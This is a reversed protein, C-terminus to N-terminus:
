GSLLSERENTTISRTTRTSLQELKISAGAIAAASKDDVVGTISGLGAQGFAATTSLAFLFLFRASM